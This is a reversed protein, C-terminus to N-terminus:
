IEITDHLKIQIDQPNPLAQIAEWYPKINKWNLCKLREKRITDLNM